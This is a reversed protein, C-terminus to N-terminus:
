SADNVVIDYLLSASHNSETRCDFIFKVGDSFDKKATQSIYLITEFFAKLYIMEDQLDPYVAKFGRIDLAVGFGFAGSAALIQTLDRYLIKKEHHDLGAYDGRDSDCDTSHFPIGGTRATWKDVLPGRVDDGAFLGAVAFVRQKTEDASDDGFFTMM